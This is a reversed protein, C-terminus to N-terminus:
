IGTATKKAVPSLAWWGGSSARWGAARLLERQSQTTKGASLGQMRGADLRMAYLPVADPWASAIQAMVSRVDNEGIM